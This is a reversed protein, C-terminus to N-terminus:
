VGGVELAPFIPSPLLRAPLEVEVVLDLDLDRLLVLLPEHLLQAEVLEEVELLEGAVGLVDQPVEAVGLILVREVVAIGLLVHLRVQGCGLAEVGPDAQHFQLLEVIELRDPVVLLVLHELPDVPLQAVPEVPLAGDGVHQDAAHLAVLGLQGVEPVDVAEQLAQLVGILEVVELFNFASHDHMYEFLSSFRHSPFATQPCLESPCDIQRLDDIENIIIRKDHCGQRFNSKAVRM